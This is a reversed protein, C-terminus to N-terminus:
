AVSAAISVWPLAKLRSDVLDNIQDTLDKPEIYNGEDDIKAQPPYVDALEEAIVFLHARLTDSNWIKGWPALDKADTWSCFDQAASEFSDRLFTFYNATTQSTM